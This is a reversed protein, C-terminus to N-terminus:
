RAQELRASFARSHMHCLALALADAADQPPTEALSLLAAVMQAVQQKDAQGYGAVAKKVARASYEFVPCSGGAAVIVVGRVQGLVLASRVNHAAFVEEVVVEDPRHEDVLERLSADLLKLREMVPQKQPLKLVGHEVVRARNGVVDVIAYGTYRSGPDIGLIRVTEPM